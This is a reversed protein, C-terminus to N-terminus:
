LKVLRKYVGKVVICSCGKNGLLYLKGSGRYERGCVSLIKLSSCVIRKWLCFSDKLSSFVNGEVAFAIRKARLLLGKVICSLAMVVSVWLVGFRAM